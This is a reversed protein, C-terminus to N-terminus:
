ALNEGTMSVGVTSDELPLELRRAVFVVSM